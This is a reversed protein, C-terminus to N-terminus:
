PDDPVSDDDPEWWARPREPAPPDTTPATAAAASAFHDDLSADGPPREPHVPDRGPASVPEDYLRNWWDDVAATSTEGQQSM